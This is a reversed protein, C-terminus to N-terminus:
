GVLQVRRQRRMADDVAIGAEGVELLYPAHGSLRTTANHGFFGTSSCCSRTSRTTTAAAPFPSSSTRSIPSGPAEQAASHTRGRFRGQHPVDPDGQGRRASRGLCRSPARGAVVPDAGHRQQYGRHHRPRGGVRRVLALIQTACRCARDLPWPRSSCTSRRKQPRRRRHDRHLRQARGGQRRSRLHARGASVRASPPRSMARRALGGQDHQRGAPTPNQQYQAAFVRSGIERSSKLEIAERAQRPGTAAIRGGSPPLDRGRRRLYIPPRTAIAPLM